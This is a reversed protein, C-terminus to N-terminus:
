GTQDFRMVAPITKVLLVLDLWLSWKRVYYRDHAIRAQYTTCNRGSTQWMGSLGPRAACYAKMHGGYHKAEDPVIPRPGILSMDGRLVNFLQPLEDLSSKRLVKGLCGVRPDNLLKRTARWELAAELNCALHQNLIKDADGPMTRFKFCVFTKGGFGVRPQAFIVQRGIVVRILAAVILFIPALLLIGGTAGVLDIVRKAIGGVPEHSKQADEVGISTAIAVEPSPLRELLLDDKAAGHGRFVPKL